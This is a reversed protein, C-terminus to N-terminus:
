RLSRLDWRVASGGLAEPGLKALHATLEQQRAYLAQYSRPPTQVPLLPEKPSLTQSDPAIIVTLVIQTSAMTTKNQPINEITVFVFAFSIHHHQHHNSSSVVTIIFFFSIVRIVVAILVM